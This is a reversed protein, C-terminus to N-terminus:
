SPRGAGLSKALLISPVGVGEADPLVGVVRYGAKQWFRFAHGARTDVVDLRALAGLPDAWLDTGGITTARVDDGTSVSMTLAGAAAALREVDAVLRRGLGGGHRGPDVLLPHVEWATEDTPAAGAWGGPVGDELVARAVGPGRAVELIEARAREPTPLWAPSHVAAARVSLGVLAEVLPADDPSLDVLRVETM